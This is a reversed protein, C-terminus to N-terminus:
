LPAVKRRRALIGLGGLGALVMPLAPPLPVPTVSALEWYGGDTIAPTSGAANFSNDANGIANPYNADATGAANAIKFPSSEPTTGSVSFASVLYYGKTPASPAQAGTAPTDLASTAWTTAALTTTALNALSVSLGDGATYSFAVITATTASGSTYYNPGLDPNSGTYATLSFSSLQLELSGSPTTSYAAPNESTPVWAFTVDVTAAKALVPMSTTLLVALAAYRNM